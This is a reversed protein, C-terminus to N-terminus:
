SKKSCHNITVNPKPHTTIIEEGNLVYTYIEGPSWIPGNAEYFEKQCRKCKRSRMKVKGITHKTYNM